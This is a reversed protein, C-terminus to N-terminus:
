KQIKVEITISGAGGTTLATVKFAGKKGAATIFEIVNGINRDTLKSSTLGTIGTLASDDGIADFAATSMSSVGFKTANQPTWDNTWNFANAAVGNVTEDNPAAFTALNTSGYYYLIDIDAATADALKYVIGADADLASGVNLNSQGGMLVATFTNIPDGTPAKITVVVDQSATLGDKDTVILTFTTGAAGIAVRASGVYAENDANPIEAANWDNGDEDVITANGEKITFSALNADGASARWSLTIVTNSTAEVATGSSITLEPGLADEDPTCSTFVMGLAGLGLLFYNLRKM